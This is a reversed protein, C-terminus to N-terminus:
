KSSIVMTRNKLPLKVKAGKKNKGSEHIACILELAGRGDEGTSKPAKNTGKLCGVIDEIARVMVDKMGQGFIDGNPELLKYGSFKPHDVVKWQVAKYGSNEIRIRGKTGYIDVESIMYSEKSLAHMTAGFGDKFYLYADVTPDIENEKGEFNSWVWSVDGFLFRLLDLRHTGTNAIGATYYTNVQQIKGLSGSAIYEKIQQHLNDWRRGHNVALLVNNKHCLDIMEDAAKLTDAIPKECFIAKVNNKVAKKCIENHTPSWTCISLIDINEKELMEDVNSYLNNVDWKEGFEKLKASDIDAAAVLETDQCFKYAGAHTAISDKRKPDNDFGSAIRGCGVIAARYKM